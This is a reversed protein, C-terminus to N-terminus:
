LLRRFKQPSVEYIRCVQSYGAKGKKEEKVCMTGGGATLPVEEEVVEEIEEGLEM